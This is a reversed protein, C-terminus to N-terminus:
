SAARAIALFDAANLSAGGILGGDIDEQAFLEKANDPKVSGGYLIRIGQVLEGVHQALLERIFRHTAQAQEPTATMGTGIAWVPEYAIVVQQWRDAEGLQKFVAQLQATLVRETQESEREALTEGICLLPTLGADLAAVVKEAVDESREDFLTRRESHGLIVYGVGIDKLMSPSIEGTYAGSTYVAANQAGVELETGDCAALVQSLYVSPPCVLMDANVDQLGAIVGEVLVQNSASDGNLKWNGAVLLKRM